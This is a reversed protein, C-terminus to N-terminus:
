EQRLQAAPRVTFRSIEARLELPSSRDTLPHDCYLFPPTVLHMIPHSLLAGTLRPIPLLGGLPPSAQPQGPSPSFFFFNTNLCIPTSPTHYQRFRVYSAPVGCCALGLLSALTSWLPDRVAHSPVYATRYSLIEFTRLRPGCYFFAILTAVGFCFHLSVM